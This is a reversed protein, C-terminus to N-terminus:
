RQVVICDQGMQKIRECFRSANDRDAFYGARVRHYVGRQGLDAREVDLKADAFLAPARTALRAWAPAVAAESQLAAVQAVYPGDAVFAPAPLTRPQAFPPDPAEDEIPAEPGARPTVREPASEGELAEFMANDEGPAPTTDAPAPSKYIDSPPVIRPAERASYMNWVFAGFSAVVVVVLAAAAPGYPSHGEDIFHPADPPRRRAHAM